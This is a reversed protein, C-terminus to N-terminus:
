KKASKAKNLFATLRSKMRSGTNKKYFKIKVAKDIAQYVEPLIKEADKSKNETVLKKFKKILSDIKNDKRTNFIQKKKSVRLAKKASSTIPM